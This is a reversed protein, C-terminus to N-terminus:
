QFALHSISSPGHDDSRPDKKRTRILMFPYFQTLTDKQHQTIENKTTVVLFMPYHESPENNPEDDEKPQYNFNDVEGAMNQDHLFQSFEAYLKCVEDSTLSTM